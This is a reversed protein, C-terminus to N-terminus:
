QLATDISLHQLISLLLERLHEGVIVQQSYVLGISGYRGFYQYGLGGFNCTHNKKQRSYELWLIISHDYMCTCTYYVLM